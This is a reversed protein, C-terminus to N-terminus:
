RQQMAGASLQQQIRAHQEAFSQVVPSSSASSADPQGALSHSADSSRTAPRQGDSSAKDDDDEDLDFESESNVGGVAAKEDAWDDGDHPQEHAAHRLESAIGGVETQDYLADISDDDGGQGISLELEDDEVLKEDDHVSHVSPQGGSDEAQSYAQEM